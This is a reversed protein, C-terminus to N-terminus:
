MNTGLIAKIEDNRKIREEPSMMLIAEVNLPQGASPPQATGNNGTPRAAAIEAQPADNKFVASLHRDSRADNDLYDGLPPPTELQSYKWMILQQDAENMIGRSYMAEKTVTAQRFNDFEKAGAELQARLEEAAQAQSEWASASALQDKLGQIENAQTEIHTNKANIRKLM